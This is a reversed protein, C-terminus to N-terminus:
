SYNRFWKKRHYLIGYNNGKKIYLLYKKNNKLKKQKAGCPRPANWSNRTKNCM